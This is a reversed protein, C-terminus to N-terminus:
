PAQQVALISVSGQHGDIIERGKSEGEEIKGKSKSDSPTGKQCPWVYAPELSADQGKLLTIITAM